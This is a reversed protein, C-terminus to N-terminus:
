FDPDQADISGDPSIVHSSWEFRQGGNVLRLDGEDLEPGAAAIDDIRIKPM